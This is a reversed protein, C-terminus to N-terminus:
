TCFIRMLKVGMNINRLVGEEHPIDRLEHRPEGGHHPGAQHDDRLEAAFGDIKYFDHRM